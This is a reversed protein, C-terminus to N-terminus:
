INFCNHTCIEFSPIHRETRRIHSLCFSIFHTISNQATPDSCTRTGLLQLLKDGLINTYIISGIQLSRVTHAQVRLSSACLHSQTQQANTSAVLNDHRSIGISCTRADHIMNASLHHEHVNLRVAQLHIIVLHLSSDCLIGLGDDRHIQSTNRAVIITQEFNHVPLLIQEPRLSVQLM